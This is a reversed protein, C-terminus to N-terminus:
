PCLHWISADDVFASIYPYSGSDVAWSLARAASYGLEIYIYISAVGGLDVNLTNKRWILFFDKIGLNRM